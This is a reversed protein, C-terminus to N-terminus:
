PRRRLAADDALRGLARVLAQGIAPWGFRDIADKSLDFRTAMGRAAKLDRLEVICRAISAVDNDCSLGRRLGAILGVQPDLRNSAVHLVPRAAGFYEFLKGPSQVTGANGLSLLADASGQLSLAKAHAVEGHLEFRSPFRRAADLLATPPEPCAVVLQVGEIALIADIVPDIRRFAYFRGTYCLRLPGGDKPADFTPPTEEVAEGHGQSLILPPTRWPGHREALLDATASNTVAVGTAARLTEQELAFARRRWHRPTYPAVVPDALDAIWPVRARDLMPALLLSAAPEHMVVAVDPRSERLLAALAEAASRVWFRRADPFVMLDLMRRLRKLALGKWNLSLAGPTVDDSPAGRARRRWAVLADVTSEFPGPSTALYRVNAALVPAPAGAPPRRCLVVVEGAEGSLTRVFHWARIAQPSRLPPFDHAVVLVRRSALTGREALPGNM